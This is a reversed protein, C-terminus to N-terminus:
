QHNAALFADVNEKTVAIGPVSLVKPTWPKGAQKAQIGALTTNFVAQGEQYGNEWLEHTLLGAKVDQIAQPSGNISFTKVDTRGQQRLAAVAGYMPSDWCGWVALNGSGRPYRALWATTFQSGETTEGPLTLDQIQVNVGPATKMVQQFIAQRERCVQGGTYFLALVSGKGQPGGMAGLVAKASPLGVDDVTTMLVGPALGTGWGGVPINAARAATLGAGVSTVPFALDLIMNVKDSAYTRFASNGADAKGNADFVKVAWGRAKAAAQVGKIVEVNLPDSEVLDVIGVTKQQAAASSSGQSPTSQSSCAVAGLALSGSTVAAVLLRGTVIRKM